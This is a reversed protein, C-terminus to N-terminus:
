PTRSVSVPYTLAGLHCDNSSFYFTGPGRGFRVHSSRPFKGVLSKVLVGDQTRVFRVEGHLGWPRVGVGLIQGDPSVDLSSVPESAPIRWLVEQSVTDIAVVESNGGIYVTSGNASLCVSNGGTLLRSVMSFDSTRWVQTINVNCAAITSGDKSHRADLSGGPMWLSYLPPGGQPAWITAGQDVAISSGLILNLSPIWEISRCDGGNILTATQEMDSLRIVKADVVVCKGDPSFAVHNASPVLSPPGVLEGDTSRHLRLEGSGGSALVSGDPSVAFKTGGAIRTVKPGLDGTSMNLYAAHNFGTLVQTNSNTVDMSTCPVVKRSVLAGDPWSWASVTGGTELTFLQTGDRSFCAQQPQKVLSWERLVTLTNFDVALVRPPGSVPYTIVALTAGGPAIRVWRGSRLWLQRPQSFPAVDSVVLYDRTAMAIFQGNPSLAASSSPFELFKAVFSGDSTRRVIPAFFGNSGDIAVMSTGDESIQLDNNWSAGESVSWIPIGTTADVVGVVGNATAVRRSDPLFKVFGVNYNPWSSVLRGNQAGMVFTRSGSVAILNQDPSLSVARM